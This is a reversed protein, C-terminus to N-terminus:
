QGVQFSSVFLNQGSFSPLKMKSVSALSVPMPATRDWCCDPTCNMTRSAYAIVKEVGSQKQSLVAGMGTDSADTDLVFSGENEPLALIPGTM